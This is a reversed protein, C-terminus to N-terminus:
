RSLINAKCQPPSASVLCPKDAPLCVCLACCAVGVCGFMGGEVGLPYEKLVPIKSSRCINLLENEKASPFCCHCCAKSRSFCNLSGTSLATKGFGCCLSVGSIVCAKDFEFSIKKISTSAANRACPGPMRKCRGAAGITVHQKPNPLNM